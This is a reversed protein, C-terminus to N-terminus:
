FKATILCIYPYYSVNYQISQNILYLGVNESIIDQQIWKSSCHEHLGLNSGDRTQRRLISLKDLKPKNKKTQLALRKLIRPSDVTNCNCLVNNLYLCEFKLRM